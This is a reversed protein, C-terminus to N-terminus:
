RNSVLDAVILWDDAGLSLRQHCRVRFHLAVSSVGAVVLVAIASIVSKENVCTMMAKLHTCFNCSWTPYLLNSLTALCLPVM